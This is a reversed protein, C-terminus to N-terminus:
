PYCKIFYADFLMFAELMCSVSVNEAALAESTVVKVANYLDIIM